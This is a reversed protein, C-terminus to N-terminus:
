RKRTTRKSIKLPFDDFRVHDGIGLVQLAEMQRNEVTLLDQRKDIVCIYQM